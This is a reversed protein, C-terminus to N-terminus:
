REIYIPTGADGVNPPSFTGLDGRSAPSWDFDGYSGPVGALASFDGGSFGGDIPGGEINGDSSVGQTHDTIDRNKIFIAHLLRAIFGGQSDPLASPMIMKGGFGEVDGGLARQIGASGLEQLDLGALEAVNVGQHAVAEAMNDLSTEENAKDKSASKGGGRGFGINQLHSNIDFDSM